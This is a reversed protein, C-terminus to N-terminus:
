CTGVESGEDEEKGDARALPPEPAFGSGETQGDNMYVDVARQLDFSADGLRMAAERAPIAENVADLFRAILDM